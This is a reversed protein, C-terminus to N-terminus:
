PEMLGRSVIGPTPGAILLVCLFQPGTEEGM